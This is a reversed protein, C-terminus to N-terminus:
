LLPPSFRVIDGDARPKVIRIRAPGEKDLSLIGTVIIYQNVSLPLRLGTTDVRVIVNSGDLIEMYSEFYHLASVRGWTMVLLGISNVGSGVEVGYQGIPPIGFDGGGLTFGNFSIPNVLSPPNPSIKLTTNTIQREDDATTGMVGQVNVISGRILGSIGAPPSAVRIGSWRGPEEIYFYVPGPGPNRTFYYIPRGTGESTTYYGMGNADYGVAEGQPESVLPANYATGNFADWLNTGPPRSWVSANSYGRIVIEDGQPSIDGATAWGWPLMAVRRLTITPGPVLDAAAARYVRSQSERKSVIYLDGTQSDIMLTEADRAGDEYVFKLTAVGTLNVNVPPQSASVTPEKVRYVCISSRVANNDGIDGLYLYDRGAVPGPGIAMDEWDTASIGSLNYIGLHMGATNMAFVRASDGSDNHLWLVDANKRSAAIGSAENIASHQITGVQAGPAFQPLIPRYDTAGTTAIKGVLEVSAGNPLLKAQAISVIDPCAASASVMLAAIIAASKIIRRCILAASGFCITARRNRNTARGNLCPFIM